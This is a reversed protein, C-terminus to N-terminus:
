FKYENVAMDFRCCFPFVIFNLKKNGIDSSTNRFFGPMKNKNINEVMRVKACGGALLATTQPLINNFVPYVGM